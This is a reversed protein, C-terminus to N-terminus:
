FSGRRNVCRRWALSGAVQFGGTEAGGARSCSAPRYRVGVPVRRGVKATGCRRLARSYLQARLVEHAADCSAAQFSSATGRVSGAYADTVGVLVAAALALVAGAATLRACRAASRPKAGTVDGMEAIRTEM